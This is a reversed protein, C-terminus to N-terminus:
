DETPRFGRDDQSERPLLLGFEALNGVPLGLLLKQHWTAANCIGSQVGFDEEQPLPPSFSLMQFLPNGHPSIHSGSLFGCAQNDTM